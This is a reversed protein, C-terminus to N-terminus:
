PIHNDLRSVYRYKSKFAVLGVTVCEHACSPALHALIKIIIEEFNGDKSSPTRSSPSLCASPLLNYIPFYTFVGDASTIVSPCFQLFSAHCSRLLLLYLIGRM